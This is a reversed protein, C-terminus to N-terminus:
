LKGCNKFLFHFVSFLGRLYDIKKEPFRSYGCHFANFIGPPYIRFNFVYVIGNFTM